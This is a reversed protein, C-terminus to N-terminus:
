DQQSSSLDVRQAACFDALQQAVDRFRRQARDDRCKAFRAARRLPLNDLVIAEFFRLYFAPLSARAARFEGRAEAERAHIAMPAQGMGGSGGGVNGSLSHHSTKVRGTLGASEWRERYWACAAFQDDTIRDARHMRAVISVNERRHAKVTKVTGDELRPTFTRHDGHQFWEETPEIVFEGIRVTNGNDMEIEAAAREIERAHYAKDRAILRDVRAREERIAQPESVFGHGSKALQKGLGRKMEMEASGEVAEALRTAEAAERAKRATRKEFWTMGM